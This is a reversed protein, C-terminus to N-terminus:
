ILKRRVRLLGKVSDFEAKIDNNELVIPEGGTVKVEM